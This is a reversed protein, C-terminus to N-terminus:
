LKGALVRDELGDVDPYVRDIKGTGGMGRRGGEREVGEVFRLSSEAEM